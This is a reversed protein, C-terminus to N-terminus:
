NAVENIFKIRMLRLEEEDYDGDFEDLADQIRDTEAEMFYTYIEEQQEEDLLEYLSYNINLKTGSFIIAEMEKILESMKLGKSKAIDILPLKKDTNQIIFLKLSSNTGTSKVILDDPRLIDNEEVYSEILKVFEAGFKRAKGEGVGHVKSLEELNIPYKLAMDDLSPDQFVAFPPVGQKTAVRKRVGKLIKVLKADAAAGASKANTIILNDNEETYSHDETMMFSHPNEIFARGKETLKVVGYQEIEKRIFSVVLVQRVLAMWYAASKDKGSGFHPQLHTKHSTLLANEKGVITNVVEKSKYKQHTKDIVELIKVVDEQAEHKKKPNRSNDNMDAGAGNIEDFEEGFYHL